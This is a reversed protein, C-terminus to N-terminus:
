EKTGKKEKVGEARTKTKMMKDVDAETIDKGHIDHAHKIVIGTLENKNESRAMFGCDPSCEVSYLNTKMEAKAEKKLTEKAPEKKADQSSAISTIFLALVVPLFVAWARKFM